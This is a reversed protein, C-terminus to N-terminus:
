GKKEETKKANDLKFQIPMNFQVRVDKGRQKGPNWAPMSKVVRLAENDCADDFGRLLKVNSISGDKEIIFTVLCKGEVGNARAEEPYKIHTSLYQSLAEHGGQFTPMEEVVMFIPEEDTQAEQSEKAQAKAQKDQASVPNSLTVTILAALIITVPLLFLFKWVSKNSNKITSMMTLRRKITSHNFNNTLYNIQMGFVQNLLLNQYSMKNIGGELVGRDALYEHNTKIVRKYLWIFPNFWQFITLLEVLLLDISHYQRIHVREHAIVKDISNTNLLDKNVFIMNLISFPAYDGTLLVMNDNGIKIIGFRKILFLIHLLQSILRVSFMFVGSLYIFLLIDNSSMGSAISNVIGEPRIIVEQLWVANAADQNVSFSLPLGPIIAAVLIGLILFSRNQSFGTENKLLLQYGIFFLSLILSSQFWYEIFSNM